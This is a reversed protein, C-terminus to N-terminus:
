KPTTTTTTMMMKKMMMMQEQEYEQDYNQEYQQQDQDRTVYAKMHIPTEISLTEQQQQQQEELYTRRLFSSSSSLSSSSHHHEATTQFNYPSSQSQSPSSHPTGNFNAYSNNSYSNNSANSSSSWSYNSSSSDRGDGDRYDGGEVSLEHLLVTPATCHTTSSKSMTTAPNMSFKAVFESEDPSTNCNHNHSRGDVSSFGPILCSYLSSATSKKLTM